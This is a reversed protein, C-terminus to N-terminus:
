LSGPGELEQLGIDDLFSHSSQEMDSRHGWGPWVNEIEM